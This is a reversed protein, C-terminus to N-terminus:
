NSRYCPMEEPFKEQINKEPINDLQLKFM